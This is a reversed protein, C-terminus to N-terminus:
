RHSTSPRETSNQRTFAPMVRASPSNTARTICAILVPTRIAVWAARSSAQAIGTSATRVTHCHINSVV